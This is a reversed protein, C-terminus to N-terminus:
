HLINLAFEGIQYIDILIVVKVTTLTTKLSDTNSMKLTHEGIMVLAIM